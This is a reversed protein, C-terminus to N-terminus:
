SKGLAFNQATKQAGDTCKGMKEGSYIIKTMELLSYLQLSL